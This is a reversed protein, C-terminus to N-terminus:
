SGAQFGEAGGLEPPASYNYYTEGKEADDGMVPRSQAMALILGTGPEIMNMTAIVSDEPAVVKSLQREAMRQTKPDIATRITLGGRNLTQEREEPTRGLSPLQLLTRRVYDCIFPYKSAACGNRTRQVQDAEFGRDKAEAAQDPTILKLEAMRNIVVDRRQLAADPNRVPNLQNPDQVLGALLAAQDLTLKEASTGFYHRAAAEVGYAGDGYYALNLYRELIEDKSLQQELAIAYRLEKIKRQYGAVGDSRTVEAICAQDLNCAEQL